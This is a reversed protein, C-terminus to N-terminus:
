IKGKRSNRRCCWVGFLWIGLASSPTPVAAAIRLGGGTFYDFPASGSLNTDAHDTSFPVIDFRSSGMAVRITRDPDSDELIEQESGSADLLGWPSRTSPYAGVNLYGFNPASFGIGASTQGGEEPLGSQLPTDSANPYLWYGPQGPGFRSPDFYVAKFWEDRSPIWFRAGPTRTLQDTYPTVGNASFTSTDYAGSAFAAADTRRDNHLWNAYRAALRWSMDAPFLESGTVAAYRGNGTSYIWRGVLGNAEPEGTWHPAFANVFTLWEAVTVETTAIAYPYAVSGIGDNFSNPTDHAANGPSTIEAFVGPQALAHSALPCLCVWLCLAASLHRVTSRALREGGKFFTKMPSGAPTISIQVCVVRSQSTDKQINAPQPMLGAQRGSGGDSKQGSM